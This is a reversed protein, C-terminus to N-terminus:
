KSVNNKIITDINPNIIVAYRLKKPLLFPFSNTYLFIIIPEAKPKTQKKPPKAEIKGWFHM